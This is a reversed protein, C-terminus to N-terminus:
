DFVSLHARISTLITNNSVQGIILEDCTKVFESIVFGRNKKVFNDKNQNELLLKVTKNAITEFYM